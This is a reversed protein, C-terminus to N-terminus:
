ECLEEFGSHRRPHRPGPLPEEWPRSPQHTPRPRPGSQERPHWLLRTVHCGQRAGRAGAKGDAGPVGRGRGCGEGVEVRKLPPFVSAWLASGPQGASRGVSLDPRSPPVLARGAERGWPPGVHGRPRRPVQPGGPPVEPGLLSSPWRRLRVSRLALGGRPLVRGWPLVQGECSLARAM